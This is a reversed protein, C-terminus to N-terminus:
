RKNCQRTCLSTERPSPNTKAAQHWGDEAHKPSDTWGDRISPSVQLEQVPMVADCGLLVAQISVM